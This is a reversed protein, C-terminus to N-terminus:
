ATQRKPTFTEKAVLRELNRLRIQMQDIMLQYRARGEETQLADRTRELVPIERQYKLIKARRYYARNYQKVYDKSRSPFRADMEVGM